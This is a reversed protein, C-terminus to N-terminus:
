RSTTEKAKIFEANIRLTVTNGVVLGGNDMTKNWKIGFDQRNIKAEAEIGFRENGWPDTIPGNLVFPLRIERTIGKITLQGVAVYGEDTKEIRTTKFTIEPYTEADFFDKSRLHDDRKQNETNISAVKIRAEARSNTINERDLYFVAEYEDFKGHVKTIVMHTVSFGIYTHSPDIVFKEQAQLRGTLLLAGVMLGIIIRHLRKM